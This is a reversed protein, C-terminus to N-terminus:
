EFDTTVNRVIWDAVTVTVNLDVADSWLADDESEHGLSNITATLNYITNKATATSYGAPYDNDAVIARFYRDKTEEGTGFDATISAKVIVAVAAGKTRVYSPTTYFNATGNAVGANWGNVNYVYRFESAGATFTENNAGEDKVFPAPCYWTDAQGLNFPSIRTPVRRVAVDDVSNISTGGLGDFAAGPSHDVSLNVKAYERQLSIVMDITGHGAPVVGTGTMLMGAGAFNPAASNAQLAASYGQLTAKLQTEILGKIEAETIDTLAIFQAWTSGGRPDVIQAADMNAVVYITTGVPVNTVVAAATAGDAGAATVAKYKDNSENRAFVVWGAEVVNEDGVGAQTGGDVRTIASKAGKISIRVVNGDGQGGTVDDQQSCSTGLLSTAFLAVMWSMKTLNRM